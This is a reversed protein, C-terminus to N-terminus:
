PVGSALAELTNFIVDHSTAENLSLGSGNQGLVVMVNRDPMSPDKQLSLWLRGNSDHTRISQPAYQSMFSAFDNEQFDESFDTFM